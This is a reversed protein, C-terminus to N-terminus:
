FIFLVMKIGVPKNYKFSERELNSDYKLQAQTMNREKTSKNFM